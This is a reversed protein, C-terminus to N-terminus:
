PQPLPEAYVTHRGERAFGVLTLGARAATRVALATPASVACLLPIGAVAAKHVMEHSARSTVVAFGSAPDVGARLLAGILKDLANHRGVDERVVHLQGHGDAWGAAHVAGTLANLTQRDALGAVARQLAEPAPQARPRVAPVPPMAQALTEAGCLGCGTRGAMARRRGALAEARAAPISVYLSFGETEPVVEMAQFDAASAVVGETLCFGLAFDELDSPTALMVAFPVGNCIVALASEEAVVEVAQAELGGCWRRATVQRHPLAPVPVDDPNM